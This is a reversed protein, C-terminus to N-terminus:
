NNPGIVVFLIIIIIIASEVSFVRDANLASHTAKQFNRALSSLNLICLSFFSVALIYRLAIAKDSVLFAKFDVNQFAYKFIAFLFLLLAWFSIRFLAVLAVACFWCFCVPAKRVIVCYQRTPCTTYLSSNM